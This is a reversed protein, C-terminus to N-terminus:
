VTGTFLLYTFFIRVQALAVLGLAIRLELQNWIGPVSKNAISKIHHVLDESLSSAALISDIVDSGESRFQREIVKYDDPLGVGKMCWGPLHVGYLREVDESFDTCVTSLQPIDIRTVFRFTKLFILLSCLNSFFYSLYLEIAKTKPDVVMIIDVKNCSILM